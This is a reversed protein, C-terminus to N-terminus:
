FKNGLGKGENAGPVLGAVDITRGQLTGLPGKEKDQVLFGHRPNQLLGLSKWCRGRAPVFGIGKLKPEM